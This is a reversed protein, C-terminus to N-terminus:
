SRGLREEMAEVVNRPVLQQIPAESGGGLEFIQKIYTSSTLVHKEGTLMFVTEIDGIMMNVNAQQLEHSLDNVDRIGRLLVNGGCKRVFHITLGGYIEVCVNDISAVHPLILERRREPTFLEEKNPNQGIGVVVKSFLRAAREIIDLHGFTVPDFSGPYVAVVPKHQNPM